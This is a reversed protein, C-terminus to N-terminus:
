IVECKKADTNSSRTKLVNIPPVHNTKNSKKIVNEYSSDESNSFSIDSLM